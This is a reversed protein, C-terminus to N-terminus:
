NLKTSVRAMSLSHKYLRDLDIDLVKIFKKVSIDLRKIPYKILKCDADKVNESPDFSAM